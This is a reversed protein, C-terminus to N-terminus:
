LFINSMVFDLIHAAGWGQKELTHSRARTLAYLCRFLMYSHWDTVPCPNIQSIIFLLALSGVM